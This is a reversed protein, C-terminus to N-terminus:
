RDTRRRECDQVIERFLAEARHNDFQDTPILVLHPILGRLTYRVTIKGPYEVLSVEIDCAIRNQNREEHEILHRFLRLAEALPKSLPVNSDRVVKFM